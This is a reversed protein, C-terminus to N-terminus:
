KSALRDATATWLSPLTTPAPLAGTILATSPMARIRRLPGLRPTPLRGGRWTVDVLGIMTFKGAAMLSGMGVVTAAIKQAEAPAVTLWWPWHPVTVTGGLTVWKTTGTVTRIVVKGPLEWVAASADSVPLPRSRLEVCGSPLMTM